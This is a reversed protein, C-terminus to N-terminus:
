ACDSCVCIRQTTLVRLVCSLSSSSEPAPATPRRPGVPGTMLRAMASLTVKEEQQRQEKLKLIGGREQAARLASHATSFRVAFCVV